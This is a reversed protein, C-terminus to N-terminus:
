VAGRDPQAPCSVWTWWGSDDWREDQVSMCSTRATRCLIHSPSDPSIIQDSRDHSASGWELPDKCRSRPFLERNKRTIRATRLISGGARVTSIQTQVPHQVECWPSILKAAFLLSTL